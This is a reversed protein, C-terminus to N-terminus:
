GSHRYRDLRAHRAIEAEQVAAALSSDALTWRSPERTAAHQRTGAGHRGLGISLPYNEGCM